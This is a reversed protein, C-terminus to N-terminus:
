WALAGLRLPDRGRVLRLAALGGAMAGGGWVGLLVGALTADRGYRTFALVPVPGNMAMFAGQSLFQAVTISRLVGDRRLLALGERLRARDDPQGVRGSEGAGEAAPAPPVLTAVLVFSVAFTAADVLMVAPAGAAALLVGGAPGAFYTTRSATQFVANARAVDATNEGLLEPVIARQAGFHAGAPIGIVFALAGLMAFSLAGALHLLPIAATAPAWLADCALLTRRAGLRAALRGSTLALLALPAAEAALVVSM